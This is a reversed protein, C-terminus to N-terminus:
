WSQLPVPVGLRAASAKGLAQLATTMCPVPWHRGRQVSMSRQVPWGGIPKATQIRLGVNKVETLLSQPDPLRQSTVLQRMLEATGKAADLSAEIRRQRLQDCFIDVRDHVAM